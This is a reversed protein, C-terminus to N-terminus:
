PASGNFTIAEPLRTGNNTTPTVTVTHSGPATPAYRLTLQVGFMSMGGSTVDAALCPTTSVGGAAISAAPSCAETYNAYVQSMRSVQVVKFHATDGTLTFGVSQGGYTGTNRVFVVKDLTTGTSRSGFSLYAATPAATVTSSSSWVANSNFEATGTLTIPEPLVTGNNTTPTITLTHNGTANPAYRISVHIGKYMGSAAIDEAGCPTFSTGDASAQSAPACATHYTDSGQYSKQVAMVKFQSTDGSFKFGVALNGHTGVNRIYVSKDLTSGTSRTGYSLAASTPVTLRSGSSSWVATPNFQGTGTFTVPEPLITGNTTSPTVTVSHNGIETPTYRVVLYVGAYKFGNGAIDDALCASSSTGTSAIQGSATNCNDLYADNAQYAKAVRVIKFQSVDGSLKFGATQAGNTGVNRLHIGRDASTGVTLTGLSLHAASPAVVASGTSSWVATPNFLAEGRLVIPEPLVTGNATIPTVTVSHQGTGVPIYQVSFYVGPYTLSSSTPDDTRCPTTSGGGAAIQGTGATCNDLYKANAQYAKAVRTIRFHSTDGSLKLGISQEGHTGVNRLFFDKEATAGPTLVGYTLNAATPTVVANGTTSWVATPNFEGAGSLTLQSVKSAGNHEFKLVASKEGITPPAFQVEVAVAHGPAANACPVTTETASFACSGVGYGNADIRYVNVIKFSGDSTVTIRDASITAIKESDRLYFLRSVSRSGATVLGFNPAPATTATGAGSIVYDSQIATATLSLTTRAGQTSAVHLAAAQRGVAPPNATVTVTCLNGPTLSLGSKCTGGSILFGSGDMELSAISDNLKGTNRLYYTRSTNTGVTITGFDGNPTADFTLAPPPSSGKLAMTVPGNALTGTTQLTATMEGSATPSYEVSVRCSAGVGLGVTAGPAGCTNATLRVNDGVVVTEIARAAVTGFNTLTFSRSAKSNIGVVGYDASSDARWSGEAGIGKGKLNFFFNGGDSTLAIGGLREGIASPSFLLSITCYAGPALTSGCDNTQGYDAMGKVISLAKVTLPGDGRNTFKVNRVASSKGVETDLFNISYQTYSDYESVPAGPATSTPPTLQEDAGGAAETGRGSLHVNQTGFSSVISLSGSSGEKTTPKMQLNVTCTQNPSLQKGCDNAQAFEAEGTSISVGTLSATETTPNSITLSLVSSTQGVNTDAFRISSPSLQLQPAVGEGSLLVQAMATGRVAVVSTGTYKLAQSPTFRVSITCSAGAALGKDCNDSQGFYNKGEVIGIGDFPVTTPGRNILQFSQDPTSTGTRTVPFALASTSTELHVAMGSWTVKTTGGNDSILQFDGAFSGLAEPAYRISMSCGMKPELVTSCTGPDVSLRSNKNVLNLGKIPVNGSNSLHISRSVTTALKSTAGFDVNTPGVSLQAQQGTGGLSLIASPGASPLAKVRGPFSTPATPTFKVVVDCSAAPAISTGCTHTMVYADTGADVELANLTAAVTGKNTLKATGTASQGVAVNGFAVGSPDFVLEPGPAGNSATTGTVQGSLLAWAKVEDQAQAILNHGPASGAAGANFTISLNCSENVGLLSPCNSSVDFEKTGTIDLLEAPATGRNSLVLNKITTTGPDIPGFTLMSTDFALSPKLAPNGKIAAYFTLPTGEDNSAGTKLMLTHQYPKADYAQFAASITCSARPALEAPCDHTVAFYKSSVIGGLLASATGLNTLKASGQAQEGPSLEGLFVIEESPALRPYPTDASREITSLAISKQEEAGPAVVGLTYQVAGPAASTPKVTVICTADVELSEPCNHSVTFHENSELGSVMTPVPGVNTIISSRSVPSFDPNSEFQLAAPMVDLVPKRAAEPDEGTDVEGNGSGPKPAQPTSPKVTPPNAAKVSALPIRYQHTIAFAPQLTLLAALAAAARRRAPSTRNFM